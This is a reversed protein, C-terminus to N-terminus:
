FDINSAKEKQQKKYLNEQDAVWKNNKDERNSDHLTFELIIKNDFVYGNVLFYLKNNYFDGKYYIGKSSSRKICGGMCMALAHKNNNTVPQITINKTYGYYNLLQKKIKTWSPEIDFFKNRKIKYVKNHHNLEVFVGKKEQCYIISSYIKKGNITNIYYHEIKPDSCPMKKLVQKKSMGLKIGKIDFNSVDVAYLSSNFIAILLFILIRNVSSM